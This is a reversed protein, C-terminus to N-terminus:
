CCHCDYVFWIMEVASCVNSSGMIEILSNGVSATDTEMLQGLRAEAAGRDVCMIAALIQLMESM